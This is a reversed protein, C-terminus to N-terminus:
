NWRISGVPHQLLRNRGFTRDKGITASTYEWEWGYYIQLDSLFARNAEWIEDSSREMLEDMKETVWGEKFLRKRLITKVMNMYSTNERKIAPDSGRPDLVFHNFMESQPYFGAMDWDLVAVVEDNKVLINGGHLDMHVLSIHQERLPTKKLQRRDKKLLKVYQNVCNRDYMGTKGDWHKETSNSYYYIEKDFYALLWERCSHYPGIDYCEDHYFDNRGDLSKCDQVTPAYKGSIPCLGGIMDYSRSLLTVMIEAVQTAVIKKQEPKMNPWISSLEKGDIYEEATFSTARETTARYHYVRVVPISPHKELIYRRLAVDNHIQNPLLYESVDERCLRLIFKQVVALEISALDLTRLQVSILM